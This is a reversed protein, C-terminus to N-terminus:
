MCLECGISNKFLKLLLCVLLKTHRDPFTIFSSLLALSVSLYLNRTESAILPTTHETSEYALLCTGTVIHVLPIFQEMPLATAAMFSCWSMAKSSLSLITFTVILIKQTLVYSVNAYSTIYIQVPPLAVSRRTEMM